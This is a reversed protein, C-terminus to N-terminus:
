LFNVMCCNMFALLPLLPIDVREKFEASSPLPHDVDRGPRKVRPFYGTGMACSAPHHEPGTQVPASSTPQVPIRDGSRRARLSDSYRSLKGLGRLVWICQTVEKWSFLFLLSVKNWEEILCIYVWFWYTLTPTHTHTHTHTSNSLVTCM